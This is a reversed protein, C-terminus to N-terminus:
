YFIGSDSGEVRNIVRRHNAKRKGYSSYWIFFTRVIAVVVLTLIADTINNQLSSFDTIETVSFTAIMQVIPMIFTEVMMNCLTHMFVFPFVITYVLTENVKMLVSWILLVMEKIMVFIEKAATYLTSILFDKIVTFVHIPIGLLFTIGEKSMLFMLVKIGSMFMDIVVKIGEKLGLVIVTLGDKLYLLYQIPLHLVFKIGSIFENILFMINEKIYLFLLKPLNLAFIIGHIVEGIFITMKLKIWNIFGDITSLIFLPLEFILYQISSVFKNVVITIFTRLSTVIYMPYEIFCYQLNSLVFRPLEFFIMNLIFFIREGLINWIYLLYQWTDQWWGYIIYNFFRNVNIFFTEILNQINSFFSQISNQINLVFNQIGSLISLIFNQINVQISVIGEVISRQIGLISDRISESLNTIM